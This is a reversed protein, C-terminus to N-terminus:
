ELDGLAADSQGIRLRLAALQTRLDADQPAIAAFRDLIEAAAEPENNRAYADGLLGLLRLSKPNTEVASKLYAIARLLNNRRLLVAALLYIAPPYALLGGKMKQLSIEAARYNQRNSYALGQLYYGLADQPNASLVMAIDAEAAALDNMAILLSARERRASASGPNLELAKDFDARARVMDGQARQLQGLFAWGDAFRPDKDLAATLVALARPVDGSIGLARALGFQAPTPNPALASAQTFSEKADDPRHLNLLAYGRSIRVSAEIEAPRNGAPIEDILQQNHELRLLTEALPAAVRDRDFNRELAARLEVEAIALDGLQMAVAGLEYHAKGNAPDSQVANRLQIAAARLDNKQLSKAAENLYAEARKPDAAGANGPAVLAVVAISLLAGLRSIM